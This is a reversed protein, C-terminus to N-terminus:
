PNIKQTLDVIQQVSIDLITATDIHNVVIIVLQCNKCQCIHFHALYYILGLCYWCRVVTKSKQLTLSRGSICFGCVPLGKLLFPLHFPWYFFHLPSPFSLFCSATMRRSYPILHCAGSPSIPRRSLREKMSLPPFFSVKDTRRSGRGWLKSDPGTIHQICWFHSLSYSPLLPFLFPPLACLVCCLTFTPRFTIM